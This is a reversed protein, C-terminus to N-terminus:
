RLVDVHFPTRSPSLTFVHDTLYLHYEGHVQQDWTSLSIIMLYMKVGQGCKMLGIVVCSPTLSTLTTVKVNGSDFTFTNIYYLLSALLSTSSLIGIRLTFYNIRAMM